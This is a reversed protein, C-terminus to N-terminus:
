CSINMPRFRHDTIFGFTNLYSIQNHLVNYHEIIKAANTEQIDKDPRSLKVTDSDENEKGRNKGLDEHFALAKKNLTNLEEKVDFNDRVDFTGFLKYVADENSLYKSFTGDLNMQCIFLDGKLKDHKNKKTMKTKMTEVAGQVEGKEEQERCKVFTDNKPVGNSRM